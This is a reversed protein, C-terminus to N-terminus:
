WRDWLEVVGNQDKLMLNVINRRRLALHADVNNIQFLIPGIGQLSEPHLIGSFHWKCLPNM